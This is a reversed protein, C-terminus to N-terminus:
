VVCPLSWHAPQVLQHAAPLLRGAIDRAVVRHPALAHVLLLLAHSRLARLAGLVHSLLLALAGSLVVRLARVSRLASDCPTKRPRRSGGENMRNQRCRDPPGTMESPRVPM